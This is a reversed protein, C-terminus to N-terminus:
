AASHSLRMKSCTKAGAMFPLSGAMSTRIVSIWGFGAGTPLSTTMVPTPRASVWCTVKPPTSAVLRCFTEAVSSRTLTGVARDAAQDGDVGGCPHGVARPGERDALEVPLGRALVALGLVGLDVVLGHVLM